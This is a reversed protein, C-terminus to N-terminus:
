RITESEIALDRIPAAVVRTRPTQPSLRARLRQLPQELLWYSASAAAIVAAVAGVPALSTLFPLKRFVKEGLGMALPHYLYVSYSIVGLYSVWGWNLIKGLAASGHAIGQVILSAALLPDVIFALSDRYITHLFHSLAASVALSIATVWMRSSSDVLLHWLRQWV